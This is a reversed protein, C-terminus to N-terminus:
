HFSPQCQLASASFGAVHNAPGSIMDRGHSYGVICPHILALEHWRPKIHYWSNTVSLIGATGEEHGESRMLLVCLCMCHCFKLGIKMRSHLSISFRASLIVPTKSNTEQRINQVSCLSKSVSDTDMKPHFTSWASVWHSGGRSTWHNCTYINTPKSIHWCRHRSLFLFV